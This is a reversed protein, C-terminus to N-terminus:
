HREGTTEAPWSHLVRLPHGGHAAHDGTMHARRTCNFGGAPADCRLNGDPEFAADRHAAQDEATTM